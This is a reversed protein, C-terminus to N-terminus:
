SHSRPLSDPRLNGTEYEGNDDRREISRPSFIEAAAQRILRGFGPAAATAANGVTGSVSSVRKDSDCLAIMVSVRDRGQELRPQESDACLKAANAPPAPNFLVIVRFPSTYDTPRQSVFELPRGSFQAEQLATTIVQEAQKDFPNGVVETYIPGEKVAYSLLAPEYSPDIYAPTTVVGSCAALFSSSTLLAALAFHKSQM